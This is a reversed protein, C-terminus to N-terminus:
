ETESNVVAHRMRTDDEPAADGITEFAKQHLTAFQAGAERWPRFEDTSVIVTMRKGRM